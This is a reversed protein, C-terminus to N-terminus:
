VEMMITCFSTLTTPELRPPRPTKTYWDPLVGRFSRRLFSRVWLWYLWRAELPSSPNDGSLLYQGDAGFKGHKDLWRNYRESRTREILLRQDEHNARM